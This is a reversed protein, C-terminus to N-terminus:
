GPNGPKASPGPTPVTLPPSPQPNAPPSPVPLPPEPGPDPAPSPEPVPPAPDVPPEPPAPPEPDPSPSPAPPEPDPSPSPTPPEPSPEPPSPTPSPSPVPFGGPDSPSPSPGGPLRAPGSGTPVPGGVFGSPGSPRPGGLGTAPPETFAEEVDHDAAAPGDASTAQAGSRPDADGVSLTAAAQDMARGLAARPESALNSFGQAVGEVGEVLDTLVGAPYSPLPRLGEERPWLQQVLFTLAALALGIRIVYFWGSREQLLKEEAEHEPTPRISGREGWVDGWRQDLTM